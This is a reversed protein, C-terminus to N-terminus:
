KRDRLAKPLKPRGIQQRSNQVMKDYHELIKDKGMERAQEKTLTLVNVVGDRELGQVKKARGDPDPRPEPVPQPEKLLGHEKWDNIWADGDEPQDVLYYNLLKNRQAENLNHKSALREFRNEQQQLQLSRQIQETQERLREVESKEQSDGKPAESQQQRQQGQPEERPPEPQTQQQQPQVQQLQRLAAQRAEQRVRGLMQNVEEQTFTKEQQGQEQPQQQGEGQPQAPQQQYQPQEGQGSAPPTEPQQHQTQGETQEDAM